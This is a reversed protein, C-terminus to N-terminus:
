RDPGTPTPLGSEDLHHDRTMENELDSLTERVVHERFSIGPPEDAPEAADIVADPGPADAGSSDPDDQAERHAPEIDSRM